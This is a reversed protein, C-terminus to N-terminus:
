PSPEAVWFFPCTSAFHGLAFLLLMVPSVPGDRPDTSPDLARLRDLRLRGIFSMLRARMGPLDGRELAVPVGEM